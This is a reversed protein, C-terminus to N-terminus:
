IHPAIAHETHRPAGRAKLRAEEELGKRLEPFLILCEEFDDRLLMQLDCFTLTVVNALRKAGNKMLALEGFHAGAYM